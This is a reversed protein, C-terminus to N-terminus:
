DVTTNFIFSRKDIINWSMDAWGNDATLSAAYRPDLRVMDGTIFRNRIELDFTINRGAYAKLNIRNHLMSSNIWDGGLSDFMASHLWSTYGGASVPKEKDQAGSSISLCLLFILLGATKKM